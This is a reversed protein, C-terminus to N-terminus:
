AKKTKITVTVNKLFDEPMELEKVDRWGFRNKMNFVWSGTDGRPVHYEETTEVTGDTHTRTTRKKLFPKVKLQKQIYHVDDSSIAKGLKEWWLLSKAEAIKKANGFEPYEEFWKYLTKTSCSIVGAFSEISLGQECHQVLMECWAPNFIVTSPRGVKTKIEKANLNKM